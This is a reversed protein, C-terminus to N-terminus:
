RKNHADPIQKSREQEIKMARVKEELQQIRQERNKDNSYSFSLSIQNYFLVIGTLLSVLLSIINTPHPKPATNETM